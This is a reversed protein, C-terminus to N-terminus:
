RGDGSTVGGQTSQFEEDLARGLPRRPTEGARAEAPEWPEPEEWGRLLATLRFAFGIGAALLTAPWITLGLYHFVIYASSSLLATGVFWEGRVFQKPPVGCTLDVLYRGATAGVVGIALAGMIPLQAELAADAGITAFWPLSFATMFQFLGERFRQGGTYNIRLALLAAVVCLILYWPNTLAGPIKNLIVDRSVGGSIGALSALLVIGMLTFHRFHTPRRTLLAGNFANTTAAILDIIVFDGLPFTLNNVIARLLNDM